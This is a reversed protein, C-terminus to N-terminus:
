LRTAPLPRPLTQILCPNAIRLDNLMEDRLSEYASKVTVGSPQAWAMLSFVFADGRAKAQNGWIASLDLSPHDIHGELVEKGRQVLFDDRSTLIPSFTNTENAIGGAFIRM